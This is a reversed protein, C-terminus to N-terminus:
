LFSCMLCFSYQNYRTKSNFLYKTTIFWRAISQSIPLQALKTYRSISHIFRSIRLMLQLCMKCYTLYILSINSCFTHNFKMVFITHKPCFLLIYAFMFIKTMALFRARSSEGYDSANDRPWLSFRVFRKLKNVTEDYFTSSDIFL